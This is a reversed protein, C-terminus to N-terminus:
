RVKARTAEQRAIGRLDEVPIPKTTMAKLVDATKVFSAGLEKFEALAAIKGEETIEKIADTIVAIKWGMDKERNYKALGRVACADCYETAVGTVYITAGKPIAYMLARVHPNTFVDNDDKTLIVQPKSFIEVLEVGSYATHWRAIGVKGNGLFTGPINLQGKTNAVCHDPFIGGNREFEASADNHEDASGIIWVGEREALRFISSLNGVIQQAGPVSLRGDERMFDNQTDVNWIITEM